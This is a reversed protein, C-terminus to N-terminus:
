SVNFDIEIGWYEIGELSLLRDANTFTSAPFIDNATYYNKVKNIVTGAVQLVTGTTLEDTIGIGNAMAMDFVTEISGTEQLAIDFLSQDPKVTVTM